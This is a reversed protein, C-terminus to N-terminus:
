QPISGLCSFCAVLRPAAKQPLRDDGGAIPGAGVAAGSLALPLTTHSVLTESPWGSNRMVPVGSAMLSLSMMPADPPSLPTRSQTAPRSAAVPLNSHRLYVM